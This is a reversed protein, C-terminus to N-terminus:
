IDGNLILLRNHAQLATRYLELDGEEKARSYLQRLRRIISDNETLDTLQKIIRDMEGDKGVAARLLQELDM